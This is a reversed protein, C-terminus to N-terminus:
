KTNRAMDVITTFATCTQWMVKSTQADEILRVIQSLASDSGIHTAEVLIMGSLNLTGGMVIDGVNKTVPLSEGTLMSEDVSSTGNTVKGDVPVRGGPVVQPLITWLM